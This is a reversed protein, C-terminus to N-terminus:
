SIESPLPWGLQNWTHIKWSANPNEQDETQPLLQFIYVTNEQFLIGIPLKAGTGFDISSLPIVGTSKSESQQHDRCCQVARPKPDGEEETLFTGDNFAVACWAGGYDSCSPGRTRMLPSPTPAMLGQLTKEEGPLGWGAGFQNMQQRKSKNWVTLLLCLWKHRRPRLTNRLPLSSSSSCGHSEQRRGEDTDKCLPKVPGFQWLWSSHTPIM